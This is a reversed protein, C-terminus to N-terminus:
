DLYCCNSYKKSHMRNYLTGVPIQLMQAAEKCSGYRVGDVMCPREHSKGIKASHEASLPVGKLRQRVKDGFGEPKAVGKKAKSLKLITEKSHKRGQQGKSRNQRVEDSDQTKIEGEGTLKLNLGSSLTDYFLQWYRERERLMEKSCEEIIEFIHQSWGYKSISRQLKWQKNARGAAYQKQRKNIDASEGVYVRGKPNTIKYIGVM